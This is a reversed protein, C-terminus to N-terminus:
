QLKRGQVFARAQRIEGSLLMVGAYGALACPAGLWPNWSGTASAILAMCLGAAGTAAVTRGLSTQLTGRPLLAIGAGVMLLESVVSAVCVGLGGNGHHTQFWPILLPDLLVSVIVCGFQVASWIRQRGLAMLASSIPMSIYVLGIFVGLVRLNDCSRAYDQAGFAAVGLEPYLICGLAAPLGILLALRVASSATPGFRLPDHTHLRCLTPYLAGVLASAPYVLVGVLKRAVANWGIVDPPALQSLFYADISPQLVLVLGFVLFPTGQIALNRVKAFRARLGGVGLRRLVFILLVAGALACAAQASVFAHLGHGGLLLPLVVAATLVQGAVMAKASLDAREFARLTDQLAGAMSTALAGLTVLVLLVRFGADYGFFYSAILMGALALPALLVRLALSSALLEGAGERQRALAGTLAIGQGWEVFVFALTTFTTALYLQGYSIAGLYRAAVITMLLSLPMGLAQAAVLFATNRLVTRQAAHEAAQPPPATM